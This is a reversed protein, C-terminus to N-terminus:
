YLGLDTSDSFYGMDTDDRDATVTTAMADTDIPAAM